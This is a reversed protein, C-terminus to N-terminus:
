FAGIRGVVLDFVAPGDVSDLGTGATTTGLGLHSGLEETDNSQHSQHGGKSTLASVAWEVSDCWHPQLVM